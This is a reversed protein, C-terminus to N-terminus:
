LLCDFSFPQEDCVLETALQRNQRLKEWKKGLDNKRGQKEQPVMRTPNHDKRQLLAEKRAAFVDLRTLQARAERKQVQSSIISLKCRVLAINM